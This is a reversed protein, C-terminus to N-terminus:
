HGEPCERRTGATFWYPFRNDTIVHYFQATPQNHLATTSFALLPVMLLPLFAAFVHRMPNLM